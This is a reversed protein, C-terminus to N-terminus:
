ELARCAAIPQVVAASSTHLYCWTADSHFRFRLTREDLRVQKM